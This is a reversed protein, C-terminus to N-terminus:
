GSRHSGMVAGSKRLRWGSNTMSAGRATSTARRTVCIVYRLFGGGVVVVVHRAEGVRLEEGVEFLYSRIESASLPVDGTM